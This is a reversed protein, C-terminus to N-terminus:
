LFYSYISPPFKITCNLILPLIISYFTATSSSLSHTPFSTNHLKQCINTQTTFCISTIYRQHRQFPIYFSQSSIDHSGFTRPQCIAETVLYTQLKRKFDCKERWRGYLVNSHTFKFLYIIFNILFTFLLIEM